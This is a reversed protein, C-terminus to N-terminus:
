FPWYVPWHCLPLKLLQLNLVFLGLSALSVVVPILITDLGSIAIAEVFASLAALFLASLLLLTLPLETFFFLLSSIALFACAFMALSGEMTKNRDFIRLRLKRKGFRKGVLAAAADGLSLAMLGIAIHLKYEEGILGWIVTILIAMSLIFLAAQRLVEWISAGRQVSLSRLNFLRYALPVIVFVAVTFIALAALAGYWNQFCELLVFVSGCAMIHYGKRIIEKPLKVVHSILALTGAGLIYYLFFWGVGYWDLNTM